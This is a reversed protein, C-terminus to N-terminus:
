VAKSALLSEEDLVENGVYRLTPIGERIDRRCRNSDYEKDVKSVKAQPLKWVNDSIWQKSYAQYVDLSSALRMLWKETAQRLAKTSATIKGNAMAVMEMLLENALKRESGALFYWTRPLGSLIQISAAKEWSIELKEKWIQM